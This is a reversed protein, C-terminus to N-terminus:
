EYSTHKTLHLALKIMKVKKLSYMQLPPLELAPITLILPLSSLHLKILESVPLRM